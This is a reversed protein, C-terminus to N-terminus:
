KNVGFSGSLTFNHVFSEVFALTFKERLWDEPISEGDLVYDEMERLIARADKQLDSGVVVLGPLLANESLYTATFFFFLFICFSLMAYIRAYIM